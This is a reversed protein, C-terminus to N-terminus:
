VSILSAVNEGDSVVVVVAVAVLAREVSGDAMWREGARLALEHLLPNCRDLLHWRRFAAGAHSSRLANHYIGLFTRVYSPWVKIENHIWLCCELWTWCVWGNASAGLANYWRFGLIRLLSCHLILSAVTSLPVGLVLSSDHFRGFEKIIWCNKTKKRSKKKTFRSCFKKKM